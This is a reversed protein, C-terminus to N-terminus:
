NQECSQPTQQDSM